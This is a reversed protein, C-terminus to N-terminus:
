RTTAETGHKGHQPGSRETLLSFNDVKQFKLLGRLIARLKNTQERRHFRM